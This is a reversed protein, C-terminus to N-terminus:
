HRHGHQRRHGTMIRATEADFTKKQDANLGAYFVKTAEGRKKMDTEREAHWAMMQDIREPATLKELASRDTQAKGRAPPQMVEVFGKWANEQGPDLQLKAKLEGLQKQHREAMFEHMKETRPGQQGHRSQMDPGVHAFATTGLATLLGLTILPTRWVKM